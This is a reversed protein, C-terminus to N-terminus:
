ILVIFCAYFYNIPFFLKTCVLIFPLVCDCSLLFVYYISTFSIELITTFNLSIYSISWAYFFYLFSKVIYKILAYVRFVIFDDCLNLLEFKITNFLEGNLNYPPTSAQRM